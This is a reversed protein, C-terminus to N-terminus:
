KGGCLSRFGEFCFGNTTYKYTGLISVMVTAFTIITALILILISTAQYKKVIKDIQSKGLLAQFLHILFLNKQKLIISPLFLVLFVSLFNNKLVLYIDTLSGSALLCSVGCFAVSFYFGAYDIPVLGGVVYMIAVYSSTLVIMTATTATSVQPLVNMQLMLPGLVMGGGIGILGAIVGAVFTWKGYFMLKPFDWLVDGDVFPFDVMQKRSSKSVARKGMGIAFVFMAAFAIAKLIWYNLGCYPILEPFVSKLGKGGALLTILVLGIWLAILYGAKKYPAAADKALWEEVSYRTGKVNEYVKAPAINPTSAFSSGPKSNGLVADNPDGKEDGPQAATAFSAETGRTMTAENLAADHDDEPSSIHGYGGETRHEGEKNVEGESPKPSLAHKGEAAVKVEVDQPDAVGNGNGNGHAGNTTGNAKHDEEVDYVTDQKRHETENELEAEKLKADRM